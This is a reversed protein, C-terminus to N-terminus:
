TSRAIERRDGARRRLQAISLRCHTQESEASEVIATRVGGTLAKLHHVASGGWLWVAVLCLAFLSSLSTVALKVLKM